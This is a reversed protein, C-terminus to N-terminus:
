DYHVDQESTQTSGIGPLLYGCKILSVTNFKGKQSEFEPAQVTDSLTADEISICAAVNVTSFTRKFGIFNASESEPIQAFSGQPIKLRNLTAKPVTMPRSLVGICWNFSDKFAKSEHDFGHPKVEHPCKRPGCTVIPVHEQLWPLSKLDTRRLPAIDLMTLPCGADSRRSIAPCLDALDVPCFTLSRLKPWLPRRDEGDAYLVDM